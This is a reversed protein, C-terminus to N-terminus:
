RQKRIIFRKLRIHYTVIKDVLVFVLKPLLASKIKTLTFCKEFIEEALFFEFIQDINITKSDPLKQNKMMFLNVTLLLNQFSQFSLNLHVRDSTILNEESVSIGLEAFVSITKVYQPSVQLEFVKNESNQFIILGFSQVYEILELLSNVSYSSEIKNMFHLAM